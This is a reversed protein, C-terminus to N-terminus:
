DKLPEYYKGSEIRQLEEERWKIERRLSEIKEKIKNVLLIKSKPTGKKIWHIHGCSYGGSDTAAVILDNDEYEDITADHIKEVERFDFVKEYESINEDTVDEYYSGFYTDSMAACGDRKRVNFTWNKCHYTGPTTGVSFSNDIVPKKKYLFNEDLKDYNEKSLKSIKEERM